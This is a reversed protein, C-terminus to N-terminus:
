GTARCAGVTATTALCTDVAIGLAQAIQEVPLSAAHGDTVQEPAFPVHIFGGRLGPRETAILHMLGYFVNNCVYTGATNSVTAPIGAARIAAVLTKVPLGSFYAAPGGPEVPEEDPASGANDPDASDNVNIAIREPTIATRGGAQGVCIVLQPDHEAIATRLAAVAEGYVTPLEAARLTDPRSATLRQVAQWSPNVTQGGFPAFGTLLVTVNTTSPM